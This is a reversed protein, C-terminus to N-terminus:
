GLRLWQRRELHFGSYQGQVSCDILGSLMGGAVPMGGRPVSMGGRRLVRRGFFRGPLLEIFSGPIIFGDQGLILGSRRALCLGSRNRLRLGLRNRLRFGLRDRLRFGRHREQVTRDIFWSLMGRAVPMGGRGAMLMGGRRLM